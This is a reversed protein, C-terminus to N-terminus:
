VSTHNHRNAPKRTTDPKNTGLLVDMVPNSVGYWAHDDLHHHLLHKKKMWRGWPTLPVIPRHSIFHKWQYFLQCVVAGFVLSAALHLSGGLLWLLVFIIVYSVLDYRVPGFLHETDTPHQHHAEHGKYMAPILKPFEHLIFRHVLYETLVVLVIGCVFAIWSSPAGEGFVVITGSVLFLALLFIILRHSCFERVYQM